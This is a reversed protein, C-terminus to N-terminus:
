IGSDMFKGGFLFAFHLILSEANTGENRENCSFKILYYIKYRDITNCDRSSGGDGSSASTEQEWLEEDDESLFDLSATEESSDSM